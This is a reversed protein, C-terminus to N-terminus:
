QFEHIRSGKGAAAMLQYKTELILPALGTLYAFPGFMFFNERRSFQVAGKSQKHCTIFL